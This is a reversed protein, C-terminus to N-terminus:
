KTTFGALELYEKAKTLDQTYIPLAYDHGAIIRPICGQLPSTIGSQIENYYTQYDFAYCFAKRLNLNDLPAIAQNFGFINVEMTPIGTVIKIGAVSELEKAHERPVYIYDAEGSILSLYRTNYEDVYEVRVTDFAPEEGWYNPNKKLVINTNDTLGHSLCLRDLEM